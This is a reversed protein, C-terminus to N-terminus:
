SVSTGDHTVDNRNDVSRHDEGRENAEHFKASLNSGHEIKDQCADGRDEHKGVEDPRQQTGFVESSERADRRFRRAVTV